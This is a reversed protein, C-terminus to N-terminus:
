FIEWWLRLRRSIIRSAPTPAAPAASAAQATGAAAGSAPPSEAGAMSGTVMM